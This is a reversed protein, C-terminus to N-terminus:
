RESGRVVERSLGFVKCGGVGSLRLRYHDCRRPAIPLAVSRTQSAQLAGVPLWTGSSDFQIEVALTSGAELEARLQLRVTQTKDLGNDYFDGTQAMWSVEAVGGKDLQYLGGDRLLAYVTGEYQTLSLADLEERKWWLGTRADYCFLTGIEKQSQKLVVYYRAGDSGACGAVFQDTGFVGGISTPVGGTYATMGTRALYFLTQGAVALTAGAGPAVGGVASSMVQFNSPKSGYVKYIADPKFFIPYGLYSAAGTFAGASGVTAAYSDTALGEYNQWRFPNGLASAYLESGKCGWLRNENECFYEMEPARRALTLAEAAHETFLNNSFVLTRGDDVIKLIVPIRNNDAVASGTISVADGEQFAFVAGDTHIANGAYVEKAEDGQAGWDYSTFSATGTWTAELSGFQETAVNYYVKDPFVLVYPGLGCLTKPSDTVTGVLAGDYYFGTGDVWCLKDHAFLGNPKQLTRVLVRDPSPCLVPYRDGSLNQMDYLRGEAATDNHDYGGFQQIIKKTRPVHVQMKPLM